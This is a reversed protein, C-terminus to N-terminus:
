SNKGSLIQFLVGGGRGVLLSILVAIQYIGGMSVTVMVHYAGEERSIDLFAPSHSEHEKHYADCLTRKGLFDSFSM